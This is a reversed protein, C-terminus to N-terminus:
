DESIYFTINPSFSYLGDDSQNYINNGDIYKLHITNEEVSVVEFKVPDYKSDIVITGLPIDKLQEEKM